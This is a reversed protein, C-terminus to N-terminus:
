NSHGSRVDGKQLKSVADYGSYIVSRKSLQLVYLVWISRCRTYRPNEIDIVYSWTLKKVKGNCTLPTFILQSTKSLHENYYCGRDHIVDTM